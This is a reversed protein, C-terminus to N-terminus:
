LSVGEATTTSPGLRTGQWPIGSMQIRADAELLALSADEVVEDLPFFHASDLIFQGRSRAIRSAETPEMPGNAHTPYMVRRVGSGTELGWVVLPFSIVMHQLDGIYTLM